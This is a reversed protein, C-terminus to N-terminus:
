DSKGRGKSATSPQRPTKALFGGGARRWLGSGQGEPDPPGALDRRRYRAAGKARPSVPARRNDEPPAQILRKSQATIPDPGAPCFAAIWAALSPLFVTTMSFDLTRPPAAM